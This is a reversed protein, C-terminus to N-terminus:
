YLKIDVCGLYVSCGMQVQPLIYFYINNIKGLRVSLTLKKSIIIPHCYSKSKQCRRCLLRFCQASDIEGRMKSGEKGRM